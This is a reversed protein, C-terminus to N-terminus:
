SETIGPPPVPGRPDILSAAEDALAEAAQVQGLAGRADGDAERTRAAEAAGAARGLLHKAYDLDAQSTPARGSIPSTGRLLTSRESEITWARELDAILRTVADIRSPVSAVDRARADVEHRARRLHTLSTRARDTAGALMADLDDRGQGILDLMRLIADRDRTAATLARAFEHTAAEGLQATRYDLDEQAGEIADIAESAVLTADARTAATDEFIPEPRLRRRLWWAYITLVVVAAVLIPALRLM